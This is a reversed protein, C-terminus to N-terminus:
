TGASGDGHREAYAAAASRGRTNGVLRDLAFGTCLKILKGTRMDFTMSVAEPPCRMSVGTPPLVGSRLRLEGRMTGRVRCTCRVVTNSSSSDFADADLRFDHARYDLDPFAGRLNFFRGAAIYETKSLPANVTPGLWAFRADDLLSPDTLGLDSQIIRKAQNILGDQTTGDFPQSSSSSGVASNDSGSSSEGGM